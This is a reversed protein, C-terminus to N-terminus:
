LRNHLMWINRVGAATDGPLFQRANRQQLQKSAKAKRNAGGRENAGKRPLMSSKLIMLAKVIVVPNGMRILMAAVVNNVRHVCGACSQATCNAHLGAYTCYVM